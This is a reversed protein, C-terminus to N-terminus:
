ITVYHGRQRLVLACLRGLPGAGVVACLKPKNDVGWVGALRLFGKLAVALPECLCAKKLDLNGPLKHVYRSAAVFFESYGGNKGIVGLESRDSCNIPQEARCSDCLGCGQICEVVVNDGVSVNNVAPGVEVVSGSVEHGPVIPYKAIGKKYYGLTGDRIELDTVCIGVYAVKIAVDFPGVQPLTIEALAARHADHIVVAKCKPPVFRSSM